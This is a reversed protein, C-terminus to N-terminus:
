ICLSACISNICGKRADNHIILWSPIWGDAVKPVIKARQMMELSFRFLSKDANFIIGVYTSPIELTELDRSRYLPKLSVSFREVVFLDGNTELKLGRFRKSM